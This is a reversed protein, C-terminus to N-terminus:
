RADDGDRWKLGSFPSMEVACRSGNPRVPNRNQVNGPLDGISFVRWATHTMVPDIKKPVEGQKMGEGSGRCSRCEGNAHYNLQGIAAM